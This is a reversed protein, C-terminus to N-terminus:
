GISAWSSLNTWTKSRSASSAQGPRTRTSVVGIEISCSPRAPYTLAGITVGIPHTKLGVKSAIYWLQSDWALPITDPVSSAGNLIGCQAISLHKCTPAVQLM